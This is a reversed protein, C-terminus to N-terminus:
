QSCNEALSFLRVPTMGSANRAPLRRWIKSNSRFWSVPPMGALRAAAGVRAVTLSEKLRSDPAHTCQVCLICRCLAACHGHSSSHRISMGEKVRAGGGGESKGGDGCARQRQELAVGEGGQVQLRIPNLAGDRLAVGAM